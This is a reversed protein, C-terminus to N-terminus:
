RFKRARRGDMASRMAVPPSPFDQQECAELAAIAVYLSSLALEYSVFDGHASAPHRSLEDIVVYCSQLRSWSEAMVEDWERSPVSEDRSRSDQYLDVAYHM